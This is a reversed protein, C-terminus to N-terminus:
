DKAIGDRLMFIHVSEEARCTMVPIELLLLSRCCSSSNPYAVFSQGHVGTAGLGLLDVSYSEARCTTM